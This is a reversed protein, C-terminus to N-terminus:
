NVPKWLRKPYLGATDARELPEFGIATFFPLSERWARVTVGGFGREVSWQAVLGALRSGLGMRQYAPVVYLGHLLVSRVQQPAEHRGAEEWAAVGVGSGDSESLLIVQMHALDTADYHLAPTALRQVRAPLGWSSVAQDVVCNVVDLDAGTAARAHVVAGRHKAAPVAAPRRAPKQEVNVLKEAVNVM